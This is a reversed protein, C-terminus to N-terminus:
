RVKRKSSAVVRKRFQEICKTVGIAGLLSIVVKTLIVLSYSKEDLANINVLRCLSFLFLYNVIDHFLYVTYSNKKLLRLIKNQYEGVCFALNLISVIGFITVTMSLFLSYLGHLEHSFNYLLTSCLGCIVAILSHHVRTYKKYKEYIINDFLYGFAYWILYRLCTDYKDPIFLAIMYVAFCVITILIPKNELFREIEYFIISTLFLAPLFWLHGNDGFGLIDLVVRRLMSSSYFGVMIRAPFLLLSFCMFYPVLLRYAKKKIYQSRRIGIRGRKTTSFLAGSVFFFLQVHICYIYAILNDMCVRFSNVPFEWVVDGFSFVQAHGFVVLLMAILRVEDYEKKQM